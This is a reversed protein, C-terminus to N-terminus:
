GEEGFLSGARGAEQGEVPSAGLEHFINRQGAAEARWQARLLGAREKAACSTHYESGQFAEGGNWPLRKGCRKCTKVAM